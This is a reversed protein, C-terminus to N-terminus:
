DLRKTLEHDPGWAQNLIEKAAALTAQHSTPDGQGSRLQRKAIEGALLHLRWNKEPLRDVLAQRADQLITLAKGGQEVQDLTDAWEVIAEVYDLYLTGYHERIVHAREAFLEEAEQHRGIASLVRARDRLIAEIWPHGKPLLPRAMNLAAFSRKEAEESKGHRVLYWAFAGEENLVRLHDEGMMTRLLEIAKRWRDELGVDSKRRDLLSCIALDVSAAIVHDKPFGHQTTQRLLSDLHSETVSALAYDGLLHVIAAVWNSRYRLPRPDTSVRALDIGLSHLRIETTLLAARLQEIKSRMLDFDAQERLAMVEIDRDLYNANDVTADGTLPLEKIAAEFQGIDVALQARAQQDRIGSARTLTTRDKRSLRWALTEEMTGPELPTWRTSESLFQTPVVVGAGSAMSIMRRASVFEGRHISLEIVDNLLGHLQGHQPFVRLGFDVVPRGLELGRKPNGRTLESSAVVGVLLSSILNPKDGWTKSTLDLINQAARDTEPWNRAERVNELKVFANLLRMVAVSENRDLIKGLTQLQDLSFNVSGTSSGSQVEVYLAISKAFALLKAGEASEALSGKHELVEQLLERAKPLDQSGEVRAAYAFGLLTKTRILSLNNPLVAGSALSKQEIALSQTLLDKAAAIHFAWLELQGLDQLVLGLAPSDEGELERILEKAKNLLEVAIAYNGNLGEVMGLTRYLRARVRPADALRSELLSRGRALLESVSLKSADEQDNSRFGISDLGFPDSTRFLEVLFGTTQEAVAQEQRARTAENRALESATQAAKQAAIAKQESAVAEEKAALALAQSQEAAVRATTASELQLRERELSQRITNFAFLSGATSASLLLIISAILSSALPYRRLTRGFREFKSITRAHVPQGSLFRQLDEVLERADAYRHRPKKELCKLCVAEIDGPLQPRLSSPSMPEDMLIQSRTELDNGGAFPPRGTLLEYLVAGLSFVDSGPGIDRVSGSAQEPSMYQITGVLSGSNTLETEGEVLKALGFDTLKPVWPESQHESRELLINSPKVDRHVLGRSHAHALGRAVALVINVAEKIPMSDQANRQELLLDSLTPGDIYSSAIFAIGEWNGAEFVPVINPHDLRAVLQAEREFRAVSKASLIVEPRPLKLAVQRNLVPDQALFVVGHGGIGIRRIIKFRGFSELRDHHFPRMDVANSAHAGVPRDDREIAENLQIDIRSSDVKHQQNPTQIPLPSTPTEGLSSNPASAFHNLALLSEAHERLWREADEGMAAAKEFIPAPPQNLRIAEDLEALLEGLEDSFSPPNSDNM